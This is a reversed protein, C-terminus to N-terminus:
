RLHWIGWYLVPHHISPASEIPNILNYYSFSASRPHPCYDISGYQTVYKSLAMIGASYFRKQLNRFFFTSGMYVNCFVLNKTRVLNEMNKETATMSEFTASGSGVEACTQQQKKILLFGRILCSFKKSSSSLGISLVVPISDVCEWIYIM